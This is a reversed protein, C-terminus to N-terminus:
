FFYESCSVGPFISLGTHCKCLPEGFDLSRGTVYVNNNFRTEMRTLDSGTKAHIRSYRKNELAM